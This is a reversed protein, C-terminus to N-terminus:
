FLLHLFCRLKTKHSYLRPNLFYTEMATQIVLIMVVTWLVLTFGGIQYGVIGIPIFSVIVGAVPILSLLFVIITLAFLYPFGLLWLGITLLTNFVAIMLQVEIVQRVRFLSQGYYHFEKYVWSIKSYRWKETFQVVRNRQLIYLFSLLIVFLVIRAM